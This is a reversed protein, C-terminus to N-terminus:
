RLDLVAGAVTPSRHTFLVFYGSRLIAHSPMSQEVQKKEVPPAMRLDPSRGKFPYAIPIHERRAFM